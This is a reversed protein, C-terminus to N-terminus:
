FRSVIRNLYFEAIDDIDKESADFFRRQPLSGAGENHGEARDAADGYIALGNEILQIQQLMHPARPGTLDVVGRGLTSKFEAYGGEFKIGRGTSTKKGGAVIKHLRSVSGLISKKSRGASIQKGVPGSPYYYYPGKRSYPAFPAGKYDLGRLTRDVIRQKIMLFGAQRDSKTLQTDRLIDGVASPM